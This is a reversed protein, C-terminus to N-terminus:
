YNITSDRVQSDQKRIQKQLKLALGEHMPHRQNLVVLTVSASFVAFPPPKKKLLFYKKNLLFYKKNVKM